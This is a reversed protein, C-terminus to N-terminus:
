PAADDGALADRLRKRTDTVRTPYQWLRRGPYLVGLVAVSLQAIERGQETRPRRSLVIGRVASTYDIVTQQVPGGLYSGAFRGIDDVLTRTLDDRLRLYVRTQEERLRDRLEPDLDRPLEVVAHQAAIGIATITSRLTERTTFTAQIRAKRAELRPKLLFDVVLAVGTGVGAALLTTQLPTM